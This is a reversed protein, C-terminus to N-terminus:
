EVAILNVVAMGGGGTPGLNLPTLVGFFFLRSFEGLSRFAHVDHVATVDNISIQQFKQESLEYRREASAARGESCRRAM